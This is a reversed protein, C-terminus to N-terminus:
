NGTEARLVHEDHIQRYFAPILGENEPGVASIRQGLWNGFQERFPHKLRLRPVDEVVQQIYKTPLTIVFDWPVFSIPLLAPGETQEPLLFARPSLGKRLVELRKKFEKEPAGELKFIERSAEMVQLVIAQSSRATDLDCSAQAIIWNGRRYEVPPTDTDDEDLRDALWFSRIDQIIDGQRLSTETVVDYWHEASM